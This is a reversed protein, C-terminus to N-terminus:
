WRGPRSWPRRRTASSSSQCTRRASRPSGTATRTSRRWGSMSGGARRCRSTPGPRALPPADQTREAAGDLSFVVHASAIMGLSDSVVVLTITPPTAATEIKVELPAHTKFYQGAAEFPRKLKPSTGAPLTAKPSLALLRTFADTAAKADGVAAYVIGSLQYIEALEQPGRGGADLAATLAPACVCLGIAVAKRAQVLPDDAWAVGGAVTGLVFM